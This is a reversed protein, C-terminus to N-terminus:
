CWARLHARFCLVCRWTLWSKERSEVCMDSANNHDYTKHLLMETQMQGVNGCLAFYVLDEFLVVVASGRIVM